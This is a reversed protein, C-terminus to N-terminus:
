VCMCARNFCVYIERRVATAIYRESKIKKTQERKSLNLGIHIWINGLFFDAILIFNFYHNDVGWKKKRLWRFFLNIDGSNEKIHSDTRYFKRKACVKAICLSIIKHELFIVIYKAFFLIIKKKHIYIKRSFFFNFNNENRNYKKKRRCSFLMLFSIIKKEHGSAFLLNNGVASNYKIKEREHETWTDYRM